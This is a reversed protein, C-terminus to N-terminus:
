ATTGVSPVSIEVLSQVFSRQSRSFDLLHLVKASWTVKSERLAFFEGVYDVSKLSDNPDYDNSDNVLIAPAIM